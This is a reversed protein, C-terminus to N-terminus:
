PQINSHMCHQVCADGMCVRVNKYVDDDSSNGGVLQMTAPDLGIQGAM